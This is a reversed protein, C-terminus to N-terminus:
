GELSIVHIMRHIMMMMVMLKLHVMIVMLTMLIVAKFSNGQIPRLTSCYSKFSTSLAREAWRWHACTSPTSSVGILGWIHFYKCYFYFTFIKSVTSFQQFIFHISFPWQSVHLISKKLHIKTFTYWRSFVLCSNCLSPNIKVHCSKLVKYSWAWAECNGGWEKKSKWHNVEKSKPSAM